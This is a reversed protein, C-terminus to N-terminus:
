LQEEPVPAQASLAGQRKFRQQVAQKTAGLAAGIAADSFGQSRLGAVARREQEEIAKRIERLAELAGLDREARRGAAQVMRTAVDGFSHDETRREERRQKRLLTEHDRGHRHAQRLLAAVLEAQVATLAGIGTLAPEAEVGVAALARRLRQEAATV